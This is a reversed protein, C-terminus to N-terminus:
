NDLRLNMKKFPNFGRSEQHFHLTAHLSVAISLLFLLTAMDKVPIANANLLLYLIALGTLFGSAVLGLFSPTLDM